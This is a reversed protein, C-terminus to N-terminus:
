ATTTQSRSRIYRSILSGKPEVSHAITKGQCIRFSIIQSTTEISQAITKEGRRLLDMSRTKNTPSSQTDLAKSEGYHPKWYGEADM